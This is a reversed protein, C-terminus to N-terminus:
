GSYKNLVDTLILPGNLEQMLWSYRITDDNISPSWLYERTSVDGGKTLSYTVDIIGNERHWQHSFGRFNEWEVTDIIVNTMFRGQKKGQIWYYGRSGAAFLIGNEKNNGSRLSEEILFPEDGLFKAAEHVLEDPIPQDRLVTNLDLIADRSLSEPMENLYSLDLSPSASGRFKDINESCQKMTSEFHSQLEGKPARIEFSSSVGTDHGNKDLVRGSIEFKDAKKSEINLLCEYPITREIIFGPPSKENVVVLRRSTLIFYGSLTPCSFHVDENPLLYHNIGELAGKM